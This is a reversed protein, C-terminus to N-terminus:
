PGGSVVVDLAVVASGRVLEEIEAVVFVADNRKAMATVQRVRKFVDFAEM